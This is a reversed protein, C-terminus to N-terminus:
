VALMKSVAPNRDARALDPRIQSKEVMYFHSGTHIQCHAQRDAPLWVIWGDSSDSWGNSSDSPLKFQVAQGLYPESAALKSIAVLLSFLAAMLDCVNEWSEADPTVEQWAQMCQPAKRSIDTWITWLPVNIEPEVDRKTDAIALMESAVTQAAQQFEIDLVVGGIDLFFKVLKRFFSEADATPAGEILDARLQFLQGSIGLESFSEPYNAEDFCIAAQVMAAIATLLKKMNVGTRNDKETETAPESPQPLTGPQDEQTTAMDPKPTQPDQPRSAVAKKPETQQKCIVRVVLFVEFAAVFAREFTEVLCSRRAEMVFDFPLNAINAWIMGERVKAHYTSSDINNEVWNSYAATLTNTLSKQAALRFRRAFVSNAPVSLHTRGPQPAGDSPLLKYLARRFETLTEHPVESEMSLECGLAQVYSSLYDAPLVSRWVQEFENLTMAPM